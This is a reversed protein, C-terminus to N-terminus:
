LTVLVGLEITPDLSDALLGLVICGKPAAGDELPKDVRPGITQFALWSILGHESHHSATM